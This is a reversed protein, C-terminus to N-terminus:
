VWFQAVVGAKQCVEVPIILGCPPLALGHEITDLVGIRDVDGQMKTLACCIMGGENDQM